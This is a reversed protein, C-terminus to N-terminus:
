CDYGARRMVLTRTRTQRAIFPAGAFYQGPGLYVASSFLEAISKDDASPPLVAWDLWGDLNSQGWYKRNIQPAARDVEEKHERTKNCNM